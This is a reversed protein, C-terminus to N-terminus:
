KLHPYMATLWEKTKANGLQAQSRTSFGEFDLSSIINFAPHAESERGVPQDPQPTKIEPAAQAADGAVDQAGGVFHHLNRDQGPGQQQPLLLGPDGGKDRWAVM